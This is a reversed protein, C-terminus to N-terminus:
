RNFIRTLSISLDKSLKEHEEAYKESFKEEDIFIEALPRMIRLKQVAGGCCTVEDDSYEFEISDESISPLMILILKKIDTESLILKGSTDILNAFIKTDNSAILETLIEMMAKYLDDESYTGVTAAREKIFSISKARGRKRQPRRIEQSKTEKGDALILTKKQSKSPKATKAENSHKAAPKEDEEETESESYSYEDESEYRKKQQRRTSKGDRGRITASREAFDEAIEDRPAETQQQKTDRDETETRRQENLTRQLKRLMETIKITNESM